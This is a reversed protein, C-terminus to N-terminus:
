ERPKVGILIEIDEESNYALRGVLDVQKLYTNQVIGKYIVKTAPIEEGPIGSPKGSLWVGVHGSPAFQRKWPGRLIKWGLESFIEQFDDGLDQSDSNSTTWVRITMPTLGSLHTKLALKEEANLRRWERAKRGALEVKIAQLQQRIEDASASQPDHVIGSLAALKEDKLKHREEHILLAGDKSAITANKADLQHKFHWRLTFYLGMGALSVAIAFAGPAAAIVAWEQSAHKQLWPIAAETIAEWM